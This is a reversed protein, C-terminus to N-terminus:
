EMLSPSLTIRKCKFQPGNHMTSPWNMKIIVIYFDFCLNYTDLFLSVLIVKLYNGKNFLFDFLNGVIPYAKPGPIESFEKLLPKSSETADVQTQVHRVQCLTARSSTHRHILAFNQDNKPVLRKVCTSLGSFRTM